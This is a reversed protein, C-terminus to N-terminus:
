VRDNVGFRSSPASVKAVSSLKAAVCTQVALARALTTVSAAEESRM